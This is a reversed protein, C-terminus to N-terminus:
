PLLMDMGGRRLVSNLGRLTCDSSGSGSAFSHLRTAWHRASSVKCSLRVALSAPHPLLCGMRGHPRAFAFRRWGPARGVGALLYTIPKPLQGDSKCELKLHCGGRRGRGWGVGSGADNGGYLRNDPEMRRIVEAGTITWDLTRLSPYPPLTIKVANSPSPLRCLLPCACEAM